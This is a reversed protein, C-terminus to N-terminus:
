VLTIFRNVDGTPALRVFSKEKTINMAVHLAGVQNIAQLRRRVEEVTAKTRLHRIWHLYHDRLIIKTTEFGCGARLDQPVNERPNNGM